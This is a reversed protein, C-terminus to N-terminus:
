HEYGSPVPFTEWFGGGRKAPPLFAIKLTGM